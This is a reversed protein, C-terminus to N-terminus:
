STAYWKGERLALASQSAEWVYLGVFGGERRV